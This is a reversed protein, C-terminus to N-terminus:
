RYSTRGPELVIEGTLATFADNMESWTDPRDFAGTIKAETGDTYVLRITWVLREAPDKGYVKGDTFWGTFGNQKATKRFLAADERGLDKVFTYGENPANPDRADAPDMNYNFYSYFTGDELDIRFAKGDIGELTHTITVRAIDPQTQTCGTLTLLLLGALLILTCKRKM